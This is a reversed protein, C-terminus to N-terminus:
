PHSWAVASHPPPGRLTGLSMASGNRWLEAHMTFDAQTSWGAVWGPQNNTTGQSIPGGEPDGLNIVRYLTQGSDAANAGCTFTLLLAMAASFFGPLLQTKM